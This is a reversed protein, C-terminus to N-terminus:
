FCLEACHNGGVRTEKRAHQRAAAPVDFGVLDGIDSPGHRLVEATRKRRSALLADADDPLPAGAAAVLCCFAPGCARKARWSVM